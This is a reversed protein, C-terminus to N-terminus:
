RTLKALKYLMCQDRANRRRESRKRLGIRACCRANLNFRVTQEMRCGGTPSKLWLHHRMQGCISSLPGNLLDFCLRSWIQPKQPRLVASRWYFGDTFSFQRFVLVISLLQTDTVIWYMYRAIISCSMANESFGHLQQQCFAYIPSYVPFHSQVIASRIYSKNKNWYIFVSIKLVKSFEIATKVNTTFFFSILCLPFTNSWLHYRSSFAGCRPFLFTVKEM